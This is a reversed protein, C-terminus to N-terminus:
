PQNKLTALFHEVIMNKIEPATAQSFAHGTPYSKHVASYAFGHTKLYDLIDRSMATGPWIQDNEASILLIPGRIKEFAFTAAKVKETEALAAEFRQIQTSGPMEPLNLAPIDQGQYTWASRPSTMGAWAVKSPTTIAVSKIRADLIALLFGAESGRSGSVVGMRSADLEPVTEAYDLASIFYEMPIQDLSPPLGPETKFYVLGIVAIGRTAMMAGNADAFGWSPDSGGFGIVVPVKGSTKPLYLRAALNKYQVPRVEYDFPQARSPSCFAICAALILLLRTLM